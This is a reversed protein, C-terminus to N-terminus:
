CFTPATSAAIEERYGCSWRGKDEMRLVCQASGLDEPSVHFIIANKFFPNTRLFMQESTNQPIKTFVETKRRTLEMEKSSYGSSHNQLDSFLFWYLLCM